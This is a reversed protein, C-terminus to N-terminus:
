VNRRRASRIRFGGFVFGIGGGVYTGWHIGWVALFLDPNSVVNQFDSKRILVDLYGLIGFVIAMGIAFYLPWRLNSLLQRYSLQPLNRSPNNLFVYVAGILLGPGYAARIALWATQSYLRSEDLGKGIVFYDKSITVTIFDHLIAFLVTLMSVLIVFSYEKFRTANKGNKRWDIYAYLSLVCLGFAIRLPLPALWSLPDELEM